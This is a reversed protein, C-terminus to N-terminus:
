DSRSRLLLDGSKCVEVNWNPPVWTTASYEAIVAPGVIQHGVRLSRRQYLPVDRWDGDIFVRTEGDSKAEAAAAELHTSRPRTVSARATARLTVAEVVADDRM